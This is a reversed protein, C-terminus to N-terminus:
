VVFFVSTSHRARLQPSNCNHADLRLSTHCAVRALYTPAAVVAIRSQGLKPCEFQSPGGDIGVRIPLTPGARRTRHGPVTLTIDVQRLSPSRHVTSVLPLLRHPLRFPVHVIISGCGPVRAPRSATVAREDEDLDQGPRPPHRENSFAQCEATALLKRPDLSQDAARGAAAGFSAV